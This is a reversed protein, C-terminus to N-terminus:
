FGLTLVYTASLEAWPQNRKTTSFPWPTNMNVSQYSRAQSPLYAQQNSTSSTRDWVESTTTLIDVQGRRSSGLM